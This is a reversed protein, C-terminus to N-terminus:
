GGDTAHDELLQHIIMCRITSSSYTRFFRSFFAKLLRLDEPLSPKIYLPNREIKYKNVLFANKRGTIIVKNAGVTDHFSNISIVSSFDM